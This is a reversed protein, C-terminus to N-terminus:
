PVECMTVASADPMAKERVEVMLANKPERSMTGDVPTISLLWIFPLEIVM